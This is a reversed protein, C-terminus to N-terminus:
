SLENRSSSNAFRIVFDRVADLAADIDTFHQVWERSVQDIDANIVLTILLGFDQREARVVCVAARSHTDAMIGAHQVATM